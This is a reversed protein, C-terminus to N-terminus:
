FRQHQHWVQSDEELGEREAEVIVQRFIILNGDNLYFQNIIYLLWRFVLCKFVPNMQISFLIPPRYEFPLTVHSPPGNSYRFNQVM